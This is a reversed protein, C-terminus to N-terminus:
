YSWGFHGTYDRRIAQGLDPFCGMIVLPLGSNLMMRLLRRPTEVERFLEGVMDTYDDLIIKRFRLLSISTICSHKRIRYKFVAKGNYVRIQLCLNFGM